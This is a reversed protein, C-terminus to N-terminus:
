FIYIFFLIVRLRYMKSSRNKKDFFFSIEAKNELHSQNKSILASFDNKLCFDSTTAKFWLHM